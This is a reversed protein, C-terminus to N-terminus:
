KRNWSEAAGVPRDVKAICTTLSVYVGSSAMNSFMGSGMAAFKFPAKLNPKYRHHACPTCVKIVSDTTELDPWSPMLYKIVLSAHKCTWQTLTCAQISPTM